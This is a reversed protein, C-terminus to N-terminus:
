RRCARRSTRRPRTSSASGPMPWVAPTNASPSRAEGGGMKKFMDFIVDFNKIALDYQGLEYYSKGLWFWAWSDCGIAQEIQKAAEAYDGRISPM